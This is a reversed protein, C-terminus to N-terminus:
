KGRGAKVDIWGDLATDFTDVKGAVTWVLPQRFQLSVIKGPHSVLEFKVDKFIGTLRTRTQPVGKRDLWASLEVTGALGGDTVM